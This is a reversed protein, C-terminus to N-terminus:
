AAIRLAQQQPRIPTVKAVQEREIRSVVEAIQRHGRVRIFSEECHLLVAALWRQMMKSGRYRKINSECDRVVSFMSEIPNTTYLAKRLKGPVKLRHLTLLEELAEKLSDAASENISRLWKELDQLGKKADAYLNHKLATMLRTHADKRYKKALHKQINRSKHIACRVHLLKKSFRDRLAKIVGKGGDTVFIIKSGLKLGRRELDAFLEECLEHNETAGEWFGLVKKKGKLNIGLAVMFAEGGRHITDIYMAFGKFKSLPREKFEKLKKATIDVIHNSVSGPSVGFAKATDLVTERYRQASLGRLVKSLLEESFAGREGLKEYVPLVMERKGKRLRPHNVRVKQDGIFVSGPQSAWKRMFSSTPAYDPGSLEEREMYMIAEVLMRGVEHNLTDFARKGKDVVEVVKGIWWGEERMAKFARTAKKREITDQRM